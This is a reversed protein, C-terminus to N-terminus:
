AGFGSKPRFGKQEERVAGVAGTDASGMNSNATTSLVGLESSNFYKKIRHAGRGEVCANLVYLTISCSMVGLYSVHVHTAGRRIRKPSKSRGFGTGFLYHAVRAKLASCVNKDSPTHLMVLARVNSPLSLM